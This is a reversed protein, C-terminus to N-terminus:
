TGSVRCWPVGLPVGISMPCKSVSPLMPRKPVGLSPRCKPVGLVMPCRPVPSVLPCPVGPSTFLDIIGAKTHTVMGSARSSCHWSPLMPLMMVMGAKRWCLM